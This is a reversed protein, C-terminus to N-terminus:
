RFLCLMYSFQVDSHRHMRSTMTDIFKFTPWPGNPQVLAAYKITTVQVTTWLGVYLIKLQSAITLL